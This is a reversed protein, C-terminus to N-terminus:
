CGSCGVMGSALVVVTAVVVVGFWGVVMCVLHLMAHGVLVWFECGMAWARYCGVGGGRSGGTIRLGHSWM